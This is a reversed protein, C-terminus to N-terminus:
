QLWVDRESASNAKSVTPEKKVTPAPKASRKAESAIKSSSKRPARRESPESKSPAAEAEVLDPEETEDDVAEEAAGAAPHAPEAAPKAVQPAPEAIVPTATMAPEAAVDVASLGESEAGAEASSTQLTLAVAVAILGGGAAAAVVGLWVPRRRRPLLSPSTERDPISDARRLAKVKREISLQTEAQNPDIDKALRVPVEDLTIHPSLAPPTKPGVYERAYDPPPEPEDDEDALHALSFDIQTAAADEPETLPEPASPATFSPAAHSPAAHSPAAHSPPAQIPPAQIPPVQGADPSSSPVTDQREFPTEGPVPDTFV